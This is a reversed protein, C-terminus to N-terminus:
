VAKVQEPSVKMLGDGLSIGTPLQKGITKMSEQVVQSLQGRIREDNVHAVVRNLTVLVSIDQWIKRLPDGNPPWVFRVEEYYIPICHEKGDPGKLVIGNCAM